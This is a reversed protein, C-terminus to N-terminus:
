RKKGRSKSRARGSDTWTDDDLSTVAPSQSPLTPVASKGKSASVVPAPMTLLQPSVTPAAKAAMEPTTGKKKKKGTTFKILDDPAEESTGAAANAAAKGQSAAAAPTAM